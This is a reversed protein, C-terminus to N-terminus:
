QAVFDAPTLSPNVVIKEFFYEDIVRTRGDALSRSTVRIHHPILVGGVVRRDDFSITTEAPVPPDTSISRSGGGGGGTGGAAASGRGGGPSLEGTGVFGVNEVYRVAIPQHSTPDLDLFADFDNPGVARLVQPNAGATVTLRLPGDALGLMGLLVRAAVARERAVFPGAPDPKGVNITVGPDLSKAGALANDGSFGRYQASGANVSTERYHDPVLFLWESTQENGPADPFLSPTVRRGELALSTVREDRTVARRAQDLAAPSQTAAYATSEELSFSHVDLITESGSLVLLGAAASVFRFLRSM